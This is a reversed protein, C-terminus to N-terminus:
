QRWIMGVGTFLDNSDRTLGQGIRIDFQWHTNLGWTFGGNIYQQTGIGATQSSSPIQNFYEVYSNLANNFAYSLAASAALEFYQGNEGQLASYNVNSAFAISNSLAKALLLKIAPEVENSTFNESGTPTSVELIYSIAPLRADEALVAQKYGVSLDSLGEIRSNNLATDIDQRNYGEWALRLEVTPAIGVRLLAEPFAHSQTEAGVQNDKTFTYGLELQYHGYQVTQTGETFDPRDGELDQKFQSSGFGLPGKSPSKPSITAQEAYAFSIAVLQALLVLTGLYVYRSTLREKYRIQM